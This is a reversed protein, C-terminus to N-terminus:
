FGGTLYTFQYAGQLRMPLVGTIYQEVFQNARAVRSKPVFVVDFPELPLDPAEGRLIKKADLDIREPRGGADRLVIVHTLRATNRFGGAQFIAKISSMRHRLPILSPRDVEGGVYVSQRGFKRVIVTIRPDRFSPAYGRRLDLALAEPTLGAAAVDDLLALSIKGDERVVVSDDLESIRFARIELEDGRQIRYDFSEREVGTGEISQSGAPAALGVAAAIPVALALL